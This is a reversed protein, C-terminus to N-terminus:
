PAANKPVIRPEFRFLNPDDPDVTVRLWHMNQAGFSEARTFNAIVRGTASDAMPKDVVFYHSDGHMLTVPRGFAITEARLASLFDDFGTFYTKEKESFQSRDFGPDAQIFIAVGLMNERSAKAFSDHLWALDAGNRAVYEASPAPGTGRNNNSGPIHLVVFLVNGMSWRVNERYTAYAPDSSQRELPLTQRGLSTMGQAFVTRLRALRELPDFGGRLCDTWENDGFTYFLPHAMGNLERFRTDIVSDGCYPGNTIDGLHVAFASPSADIDDLVNHYRELVEEPNKVGTIYPMDGFVAFTFTKPGKMPTVHMQAEAQSFVAGLLAAAVGLTPALIRRIMPLM